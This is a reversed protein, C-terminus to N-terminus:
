EGETGFATAQQCSEHGRHLTILFRGSESNIFEPQKAENFSPGYHLLSASTIPPQPAALVSPHGRAVRRAPSNLRM